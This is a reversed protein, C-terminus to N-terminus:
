ANKELLHRLKFIAKSHIQSIRSTSLEMIKGIETLTLEQEYFFSIVLQENKTLNKIAKSVEEILEQKMLQEEPTPMSKDEIQVNQENDYDQNAEDIFILNAITNEQITALVENETMGLENAVEKITIHRLHKQELNSITHEIRKTKERISRPLWDKKRLGDLIAGKVRFSAYTNFKLDRNPDFKTLADFLGMLGLSKLEEVSVSSPLGASIRQVHYDVLPMYTEVLQEAAQSDRNELWKNWQNTELMSQQSM